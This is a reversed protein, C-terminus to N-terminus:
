VARLKLDLVGGVPSKDYCFRDTLLKLEDGSVTCRFDRMARALLFELRASFDPVLSPPYVGSNLRQSLILAKRSASKSVKFRDQWLNAPPPLAAMLDLVRRRVSLSSATSKMLLARMATMRLLMVPPLPLTSAARVAKLKRHMAGSLMDMMNQPTDMLQNILQMGLQRTMRIRWRWEGKQLEPNGNLSPSNYVKTLYKAVYRWVRAPNGQPLVEKVGNVYKCPFHWGSMGFADRVSYRVAIPASFGYQWMPKMADIEMRIGGAMPNPDVLWSQPLSRCFHVCHFHLRGTRGGPEIVAFYKYYDERSRRAKRYSGFTARAVARDVRRLYDRFLLSNEAFVSSYYAPHVTM